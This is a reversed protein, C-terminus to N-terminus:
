CQTGVFITDDALAELIFEICIFFSVHRQERLKVYEPCYVATETAEEQLATEGGGGTNEIWRGVNVM